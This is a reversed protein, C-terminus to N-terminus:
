AAGHAARVLEEIGTPAVGTLREIHDTVAGLRGERIAGYLGLLVKTIFDPQGSGECSTIYDAETADTGVVRAGTARAIADCLEATTLAAPGTLEYVTWPEGEGDLVAATARALDDRHVYACRGDGTPYPITGMTLIDPVWDVIEDAYLGNRLITWPRGCIRLASEVYLFAPNIAVNTELGTGVIGSFVVHGVQAHVAADIANQLQVVRPAPPM